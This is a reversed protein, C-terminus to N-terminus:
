KYTKTYEWVEGWNLIRGGYVKKFMSATKQTSFILMFPVMSGKPRLNGEVLYFAKKADVMDGSDYEETVTNYDRVLISGIQGGRKELHEKLLLLCHLCCLSYRGADIEKAGKTVEIVVKTESKQSDMGCMICREVASATLSSFFFLCFVLTLVTKRKM